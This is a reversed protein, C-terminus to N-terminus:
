VIIGKNDILIWGPWLEHMRNPLAEQNNRMVLPRIRERDSRMNLRAGWFSFTSNACINGRCHTMLEMDLMSNRGTNHDIITFKAQQNRGYHERAYEPDNTFIYFHTNSDQELFYNVAADYYAETSINGYLAFNEPETLYDGRRLHLSVSNEQEMGAVIEKNRKDMEPDTHAPFKYVEKLQDMIDDYYKQCLFYGDLYKDEFTLIEPHYMETETFIKGTGPLIKGKVKDLLSRNQFRALEEETAVEMPLDEFYYLECARPALMKKQNESDFWSLDLKVDKGLTKLKTYMAYQQMQNGLGGAVQVILM